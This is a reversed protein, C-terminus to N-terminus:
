KGRTVKNWHKNLYKLTRSLPFFKRKLIFNISLLNHLTCSHLGEYLPESMKFLFPKVSLFYDSAVRCWTFSFNITLIIKSDMDTVFHIEALVIEQIRRCIQKYFWSIILTTITVKCWKHVVARWCTIQRNLDKFTYTVNSNLWHCSTSQNCRQVVMLIYYSFLSIIYSFILCNFTDYIEVSLTNSEICYSDRICM